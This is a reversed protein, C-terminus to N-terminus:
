LTITTLNLELVAVVPHDEDEGLDIHSEGNSHCSHHQLDCNHKLQAFLLTYATPRISLFIM